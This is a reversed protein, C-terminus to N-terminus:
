SLSPQQKEGFSPTKCAAQAIGAGIASVSNTCTSPLGSAAAISRHTRAHPEIITWEGPQPVASRRALRGTPLTGRDAM